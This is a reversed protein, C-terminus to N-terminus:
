EVLKGKHYVKYLSKTNGIDDLPNRNLIILDAMYGTRIVGTNLEPLITNIQRTASNIAAACNMGAKVYEFLEAHLSYGYFAAYNGADTGALLPIGYKICNALNQYVCTALTSDKYSSLLPRNKEFHKLHSPHATHWLLSDSMYEKTHGEYYYQMTSITPIVSVGSTKIIQLQEQSLSDWPLHALM